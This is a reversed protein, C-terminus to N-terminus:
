KNWQFTYTLTAEGKAPVSVKFAVPVGQVPTTPLSSNVFHWNEYPYEHVDVVVAESKTNKLHVEYSVLTHKAFESYKVQSKSSRVNPAEGLSIRLPEGPAHYGQEGESILHVQGKEDAQFVSFRGAPLAESWKEVELYYQVAQNPSEFRTQGQQWWWGNQTPAFRYRYQPKLSLQKWLFSASQSRGLRIPQSLSIQMLEGVHSMSPPTYADASSASLLATKAAYSRYREEAYGNDQPRNVAGFVASVAVNNLPTHSQNSLVVSANLTIAEKSSEPLQWVYDMASQFGALQYLVKAKVAQAQTSKLHATYVGGQEVEAISNIERLLLDSSRVRWLDNGVQVISHSGDPLVQKLTCRVYKNTVADNVWLAKDIWDEVLVGYNAPSEIGILQINKDWIGSQPFLQVGMAQASKVIAVAQTGAQLNLLVEESFVAKGEPYITVHQYTGAYAQALLGLTVGFAVFCGLFVKLNM